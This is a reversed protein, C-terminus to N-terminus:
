ALKYEEFSVLTSYYGNSEGRWVLTVYGKLSAFKYFYWDVVGYSDDDGPSSGDCEECMLIPSGILDDLDGVISELYSSECCDQHHTMRFKSGDQCEFEIGDDRTIKSITKGLLKSMNCEEWM